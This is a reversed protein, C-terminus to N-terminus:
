RAAQTHTRMSRMATMALGLLTSRASVDGSPAYANVSISYGYLFTMATMSMTRVRKGDAQKIVAGGFYVGHEDRAGFAYEENKIILDRLRPLDKAKDQLLESTSPGFLLAERVGAAYGNLADDLKGDPRYTTRGQADNAALITIWQTPPVVDSVADDRGDRVTKCPLLFAILTNKPAVLTRIRAIYEAEYDSKEAEALCYGPPVAMRFEVGPLRGLTVLKLDQAFAGQLAAITVLGAVFLAQFFNRRM